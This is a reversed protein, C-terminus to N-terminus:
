FIIEIENEKVEMKIKPQKPKYVKPKKYIPCNIIIKIKYEFEMDM